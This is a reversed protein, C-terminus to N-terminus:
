IRSIKGVYRLTKRDFIIVQAWGNLVFQGGGNDVLMAAYYTGVRFYHISEGALAASRDAGAPLKWLKDINRYIRAYIANCIRPDTIVAKTVGSDLTPMPFRSRPVAFEATTFVDAVRDRVLDEHPGPTPCGHQASATAVCLGQAMAALLLSRVLSRRRVARRPPDNKM